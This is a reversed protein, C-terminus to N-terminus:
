TYLSLATICQLPKQDEKRFNMARFDESIRLSPVALEVGEKALGTGAGKEWDKGGSANRM